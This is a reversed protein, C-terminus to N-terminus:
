DIKSIMQKESTIVKTDVRQSLEEKVSDLQKKIKNLERLTERSMSDVKKDTKDIEKKM